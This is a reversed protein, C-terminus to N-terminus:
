WKKERKKIIEKTNEVTTEHCLSFVHKEKEMLCVGQRLEKWMEKESYFSMLTVHTSIIACNVDADSGSAARFYDTTREITKKWCTTQRFKDRELRHNKLTKDVLKLFQKLRAEFARGIEKDECRGCSSISDEDSDM